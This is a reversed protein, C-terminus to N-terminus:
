GIHEKLAFSGENERILFPEEIIIGASGGKRSECLILSPPRSRGSHVTRLRKPELNVARLVCMLDCLREPRHVIFFLGGTRLLRSAASCVEELTCGTESRAILLETKINKRGHGVKMYPPNSVVADYSGAPLIGKLERLDHEMIRVTEDLGNLRVNERALSAAAGQIEIGDVAM